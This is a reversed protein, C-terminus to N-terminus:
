RQRHPIGAYKDDPSFGHVTHQREVPNQQAGLQSRRQEITQPATLLGQIETLVGKHAKFIRVKRGGTIEVAHRIRYNKRSTVFYYM